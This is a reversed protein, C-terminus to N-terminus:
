PAEGPTILIIDSIGSFTESYIVKMSPPAGEACSRKCVFALTPLVVNAKTNGMTLIMAIVENDTRYYM